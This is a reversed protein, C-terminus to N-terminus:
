EIKRSGVRQQNADHIRDKKDDPGHEASRSSIRRAFCNLRCPRRDDARNKVSRLGLDVTGQIARCRNNGVDARKDPAGKVTAIEIRTKAQMVVNLAASIIASVTSAQQWFLGGSMMKIAPHIGESPDSSPVNRLADSHIRFPSSIPVLPAIEPRNKTVSQFVTEVPHPSRSSSLASFRLRKASQELQVFTPLAARASVTM